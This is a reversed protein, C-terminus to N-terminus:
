QNALYKKAEDINRLIRHRGNEKVDIMWIQPTGVMGKKYTGLIVSIALKKDKPIEASAEVCVPFDKEEGSGDQEGCDNVEWIIEASEGVFGSFWEEYSVDPLSSHLERASFSKAKEIWESNDIEALVVSPITFLFVILSINRM